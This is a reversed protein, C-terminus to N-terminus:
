VLWSSIRAVLLWSEHISGSINAVGNKIRQYKISLAMRPRLGPKLPFQVSNRQDEYISKGKISKKIDQKGINIKIGV